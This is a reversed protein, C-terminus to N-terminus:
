KWAIGSAMNIGEGDEKGDDQEVRKNFARKEQQIGGKGDCDQGKEDSRSRGDESIISGLFKFRKVQDTRRGDITINVVGDGDWCAVSAKTKKSM